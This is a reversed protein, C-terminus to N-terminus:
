KDFDLFLDAIKQMQLMKDQYYEEAVGITRFGAAHATELAYPADEVVVTRERQTGLRKIAEEYVRPDTKGVGVEDCTIIFEFYNMLGLRELAGRAFDPHSATAVAMKVGQSQLYSLLQPVYTKAPIDNYYREGVPRITAAVLEEPTEKLNYHEKLVRAGDMLSMQEVQAQLNPPLNIGRTKLYNSAANKWASLSNLLTGDLDFIFADIKQKSLLMYSPLSFSPPTVPLISTRYIFSRGLTGTAIRPKRMEPLSVTLSKSAVKTSIIGVIPAQWAARRVENLAFRLGIVAPPEACAPYLGEAILFFLVFVRLLKM